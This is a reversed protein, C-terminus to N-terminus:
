VVTRCVSATGGIFMIGRTWRNVTKIDVKRRNPSTNELEVAKQPANRSNHGVFVVNLERIIKIGMLTPTARFIFVREKASPASKVKQIM